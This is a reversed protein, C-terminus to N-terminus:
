RLSIDREVYFIKRKEWQENLKEIGQDVTEACDTSEEFPM